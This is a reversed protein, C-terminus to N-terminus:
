PARAGANAGRSLIAECACIFAEVFLEAKTHAGRCDSQEGHKKCEASGNWTPPDFPPRCDGKELSRLSCRRGDAPRRPGPPALGRGTDRGCGFGFPSAAGLVIAVGGPPRPPRP